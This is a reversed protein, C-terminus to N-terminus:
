DLPYGWFKLTEGAIDIFAKKDAYTFMERWSGSKGKQVAQAIESAREQQWEADPNRRLEEILTQQLGIVSMDAGLFTWIERMIELPKQILDEFRLHHYSEGYLQQALQHTQTVNEVWSEAARQIGKPTFLSREGSVFPAPDRIFEQRIAVDKDSLSEEIDIFSQFRHSLAADRGDRVIFVIRADPYIQHVRYVAEGNVLNNPSKDGVIRKGLQEAERELIYDAAVRLIISSLNKGQNWRNSRRSLWSHVEADQVLSTLFPPRTFFHAQWNCHVEPHVRILRALLTTGSRAHGFIFYKPRRFFQYIEELEIQTLPPITHWDINTPSPSKRILANVARRARNLYSM